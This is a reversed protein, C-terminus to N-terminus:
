VIYCSSNQTMVKFALFFLDLGGSYNQLLLRSSARRL